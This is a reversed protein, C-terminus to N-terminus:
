KILKNIHYRAQPLYVHCNRKERMWKEYMEAVCEDYAICVLKECEINFKNTQPVSCLVTGGSLRGHVNLMMGEVKIMTDTTNYHNEM